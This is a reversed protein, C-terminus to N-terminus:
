FTLICRLGLSNLQYFMPKIEPNLHLSLNDNIDFDYFHADVMADVINLFYIGFLLIYSMNMNSQYQTKYFTVQEPIQGYELKLVAYKNQLAWTLSTDPEPALLAAYANRYEHYLKQFHLAQYGCITMGGWIIPAKWYKRNYIQGLGPVLASM